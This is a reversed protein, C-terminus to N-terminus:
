NNQNYQVEAQFTLLTQCYILPTILIQLYFFVPCYL